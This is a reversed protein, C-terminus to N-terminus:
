QQAPGCGEDLFSEEGRRLTASGTAAEGGRIEPNVLPTHGDIVGIVKTKGAFTAKHQV